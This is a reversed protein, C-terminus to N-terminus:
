VLKGRMKHMPLKNQQGKAAWFLAYNEESVVVVVKEFKRPRKRSSRSYMLFILRSRYSFPRRKLSLLCM